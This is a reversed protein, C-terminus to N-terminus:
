SSRCASSSALARAVLSIEGPEASPNLLQQVDCFLLCGIDGSMGNLLSIPQASLDMGLHVLQALSRRRLQGLQSVSLQGVQLCQPASTLLVGQLQPFM